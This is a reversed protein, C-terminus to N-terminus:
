LSAFIGGRLVEYVTKDKSSPVKWNSYLKELLKESNKPVNLVVGNWSIKELEVNKVEVNQWANFYTDNEKSCIYFDCSAFHKKHGEVKTKIIDTTTGLHSEKHFSFEYDQLKKRLTLFDNNIMIDIDDDGEICSGDRIIGLLTGYFLFWDNIGEKNLIYAVRTLTENLNDKNTRKGSMKDDGKKITLPIYRNNNANDEKGILYQM